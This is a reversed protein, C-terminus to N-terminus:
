GAKPASPQASNQAPAVAPQTAGSLGGNPLSADRGAPAQCAASGQAHTSVFQGYQGVRCFPNLALSYGGGALNSDNQDVALVAIASGSSSSSSDSSGGSISLTEGAPLLSQCDTPNSSICLVKAFQSVAAGGGSGSSNNSGGTNYVDVVDGAHILGGSAGTQSTGISIVREDPSVMALSATGAKLLDRVDIRSGSGIDSLAVLPRHQDVYQSVYEAETLDQPDVGGKPIQRTQLQASQITTFAPVNTKAVVITQLDQVGMYAKYFVIGAIAIFLFAAIGPISKTISKRQNMRISEDADTPRRDRGYVACPREGVNTEGRWRV